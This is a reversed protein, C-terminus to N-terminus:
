CGVDRGRGLGRSWRSVRLTRLGFTELRLCRRARCFSRCRKAGRPLIECTRVSQKQMVKTKKKEQQDNRYVVNRRKNRQARHQMQYIAKNMGKQATPNSSAAPNFNSVQNISQNSPSICVNARQSQFISLHFPNPVLVNKQLLLICENKVATAM